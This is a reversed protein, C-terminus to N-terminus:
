RTAAQGGGPRYRPPNRPLEPAAPLSQTLSDDLKKLITLARQQEARRGALQFRISDAHAQKAADALQRAERQQVTRNITTSATHRQYLYACWTGASSLLLAGFIVALVAALWRWKARLFALIQM